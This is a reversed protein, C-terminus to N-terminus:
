RNGEKDQPVTKPVAEDLTFSTRQILGDALANTKPSM